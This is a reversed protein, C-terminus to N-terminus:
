KVEFEFIDPSLIYSLIETGNANCVYLHLNRADFCLSKPKKMEVVKKYNVGDRSILIVCNSDQCAVFLNGYQDTCMNRPGHVDPDSFQWLKQGSPSYCHVTNDEFETRFHRDGHKYIYVLNKQKMPFTKIVNGSLSLFLIETQRIAVIFNGDSYHLSYGRGNIFYEQLNLFSEAGYVIIKQLEPFSVAFKEDSVVTLGFPNSTLSITRYISGDMKFLVLKNNIHDAVVVYGNHLVIISSIISDKNFEKNDFSTQRRSFETNALGKVIQCTTENKMEKLIVKSDMKKVIVDLVGSIIDRMTDKKEIAVDTEKMAQTKLMSNLANSEDLVVDEIQKMGHFVQTDTGSLKLHTLNNRYDVIAKRKDNLESMVRQIETKQNQLSTQFKSLLKIELANLIEDIEKRIESVKSENNSNIELQELNNRRNEILEDINELTIGISKDLNVMKESNKLDSVFTHFLTIGLCSAHNMAACKSCCPTEHSPCYLELPSDHIHCETQFASIFIRLTEFTEIPVVSHNRSLKIAKHHGSCEECLGEECSM